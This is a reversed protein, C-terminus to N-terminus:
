AMQGESMQSKVSWSRGADMVSLVREGAAIVRYTSLIHRLGARFPELYVELLLIFTALHGPTIEGASIRNMGYWLM